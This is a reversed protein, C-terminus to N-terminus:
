REMPIVYLQSVGSEASNYVIRTGDRSWACHPHTGRHSTDFPPQFVVLRETTRRAVDVLVVGRDDSTVIWTCTPDMTPHGAIPEDVVVHPDSGDINIM